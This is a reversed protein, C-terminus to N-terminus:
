CNQTNKQGQYLEGSVKRYTGSFFNLYSIQSFNGFLFKHISNRMRSSYIKAFVPQLTIPRFNLLEMSFGKQLDIYYICAELLELIETRKLLAM